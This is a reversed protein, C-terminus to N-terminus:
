RIHEFLSLSMQDVILKDGIKASMDTMEPMSTDLLLKWSGTEPWSGGVPPTFTVPGTDNFCAAQFIMSSGIKDWMAVLVTKLAPLHVVDMRERRPAKLAPHEQRLRILRKYFQLIRSYPGKEALRWDLKSRLFTGEDAPDRPYGKWAFSSFEDRRGKRVAEVLAPDSHSIFYQFPSKEAYEEGMFLLPIYPSLIVSAAALRLKGPPLTASLRDGMMRNGVQDHTQSHVILKGQPIHASPTGHAKGRYESHQGTYVFGESYAKAMDGTGKFDAYYGDSEGTLLTHLCHHFDDSWQADLGFGKEKPPDVIKSDSLDSEAILYKSKGGPKSKLTENMERLLHVPSKDFIGHVADLRLADFGFELLWYLANDIFFKRVGQSDPGDLNIAEGWPTEYRDTFYPGFSKLYNGEPGLHNYVVDLVAALGAGHLADVLKILGAPGGYSNQVAYPYVGDYGWNRGGPFQAVPMLEVATVGLERLYPIKDIAAEFTGEPTFTGVHLEYLIYNTLPLNKWTSEPREFEKLDVTMSPGHVGEPQLRSAPDPREETDDLSYVYLAGARLGPIHARFYGEKDREM